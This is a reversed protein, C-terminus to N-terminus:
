TRQAAPRLNNLSQEIDSRTIDNSVFATGLHKTLVFRIAGDEFKKDHATAALTTDPRIDAPLTTPLGADKLACRVVDAEATPLGAKRVSLDLAACIGIAIAEGHLFRGYGGAREIAHGVTHGFNLLAREGTQEHPDSAVVSAKIAVNRAVLGPLDRTSLPVAERVLGADRIVGHKIIEALGERFERGPLSQLTNTDAIVLRPQHFAGILNKGARANIGTKGGVSSDVQALLSTPVQTCAIGRGFIAAAFGALDGVVGGGLAVVFSKRDMGGSAMAECVMELQDFSKSSEGAPVEVALTRVGAKELSRCLVEGYLPGVHSDTVVTCRSGGGCAQRISPGCEALLGAGVVVDYSFEGLPVTVRKEM